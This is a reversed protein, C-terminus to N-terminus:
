AMMLCIAHITAAVEIWDHISFSSIPKVNCTVMSYNCSSRDLRPYQFDSIFRASSHKERSTAAVEIWDHISFSGISFAIIDTLTMNCSSRDLRPYQFVVGYGVIGIRMTTAAVEIWDHISFTLLM